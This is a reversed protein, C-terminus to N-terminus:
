VHVCDRHISAAAEADAIRLDRLRKELRESWWSKASPTLNARRVLIDARLLRQILDLEDNSLNVLM